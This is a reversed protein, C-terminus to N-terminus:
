RENPIWIGSPTELRPNACVLNALNAVLESTVYNELDCMYNVIMYGLEGLENKGM